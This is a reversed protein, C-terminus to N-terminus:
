DSYPCFHLLIRELCSAHTRWTSGIHSLADNDNNRHNLLVLGPFQGLSEPLTGNLSNYELSLRQLNPWQGTLIELPGSFLNNALFLAELKNCTAFEGPLTGTLKNNRLSRVRLESLSGLSSPPIDGRFFKGPLRVVRFRNDVCRICLRYDELICLLASFQWCLCVHFRICFLTLM